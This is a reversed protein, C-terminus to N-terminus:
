PQGAAPSARGPWARHRASAALQAFVALHTLLYLPVLYGPILLWPLTAMLGTGPEEFIFRLPFAPQSGIGLTVAAVLDVFGFVNWALAV